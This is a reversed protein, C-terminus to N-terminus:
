RLMKLFCWHFSKSEGGERLMYDYVGGLVDGDEDGFICEKSEGPEWVMDRKEACALMQKHTYNHWSYEKNFKTVIDKNEKVFNVLTKRVKSRNTIIFSCSSSNSVFGQRVKM